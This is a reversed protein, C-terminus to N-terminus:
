FLAHCKSCANRLRLSANKVESPRQKKVAHVFAMAEKRTAKAQELWNAKGNGKDLSYKTALNPDNALALQIEAIAAIRYGMDILDDSYNRLRKTSLLDRAMIHLM